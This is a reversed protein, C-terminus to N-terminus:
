PASAVPKKKKAMKSKTAKQDSGPVLAVFGAPKDTKTKLRKPTITTPSAERSAEAKAPLVTTSARPKQSPKTVAKQERLLRDKQMSDALKADARTAVESQEKQESSRTDQVQIEQGQACPSQSYTTGCRYITEGSAGVSVTFIAVFLIAYIGLKTTM